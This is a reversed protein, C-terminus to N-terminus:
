SWPPLVTTRTPTIQGAINQDLSAKCLAVDPAGMQAEVWGQVQSATLSAFPTFNQPDIPGLAQSGYATAVHGSGDNGTLRWHVSYVANTLGQYTPYVDLAPFQWTYTTM